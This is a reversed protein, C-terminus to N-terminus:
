VKTYYSNFLSGKPWVQSLNGVKSYKYIYFATLEILFSNKFNTHNPYFYISINPQNIYLFVICYFMPLQVYNMGFNHKVISKNLFQFSAAQTSKNLQTRIAHATM